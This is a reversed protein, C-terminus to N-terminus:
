GGLERLLFLAMERLERPSDDDSLVVDYLGRAEALQGRRRLLDALLYTSRLRTDEALDPDALTARLEKIALDQYRPQVEDVMRRFRALAQAEAPSHPAMAEFADLWRDREATFGGREAIRALNYTLTRAQRPEPGKALEVQGLRLAERAEEPGRLAVYVGVAEDRATWSAEIYLDALFAPGRGLERYMRAAIGYREWVTPEQPDALHALEETLAARLRATQADSLTMGVDGGYVSFYTRACTAVAYARFQGKTSYDAGDSDYGGMTNSSVKEYVRITDTPDVPCPQDIYSVQTAGAPAAAALALLLAPLLPRATVDPM